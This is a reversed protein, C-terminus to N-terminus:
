GKGRESERDFDSSKLLSIDSLYKIQVLIPASVFRLGPGCQIAFCSEGSWHCESTRLVLEVKLYVTWSISQTVM